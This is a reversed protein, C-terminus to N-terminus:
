QAVEHALGTTFTDVAAKSAAYDVYENPSGLVAARSSM